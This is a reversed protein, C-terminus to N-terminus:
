EQLGEHLLWDFRSRLRGSAFGPKACLERRLIGTDLRINPEIGRDQSLLENCPQKPVANGIVLQRTPHEIRLM